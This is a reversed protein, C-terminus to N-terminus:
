VNAQAIDEAWTLHKRMLAVIVKDTVFGCLGITLM